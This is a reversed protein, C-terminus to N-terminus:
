RNKNMIIHVGMEDSGLPIVLENHREIDGRHVEVSRSHPVFYVDDFGRILLYMPTLVHHKFAGSLKKSLTYKPVQYFYYLSTQAGWCITLLPYM